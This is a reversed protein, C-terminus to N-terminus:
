FGESPIPAPDPVPDPAPQALEDLFARMPELSREPVEEMPMHGVDSLIVLRSDPLLADFRRGHEAPILPDDAGWIILTPTELGRLAEDPKALKFQRLRALHASRVGKRRNLDHYRGVVADEIRSDDAYLTEMVRRTMSKPFIYNIINALGPVPTIQDWQQNDLLFGGPALLVVGQVQDPARVARRWAMLGGLSNGVLVVPGPEVTEILQGILDLTRDNSYDGSPDPGTLAHGPLDFRLIRYDNRLASVWADWTQLHAGFGHIMVLVPGGSAAGEERVHFRVGDVTVFRSTDTMYRAELPEPDLDRSGYVAVSLALVGVLLLALVVGLVIRMLGGGGSAAKKRDAGQDPEMDSM